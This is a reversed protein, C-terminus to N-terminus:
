QSCEPTGSSMPSASIHAHGPWHNPWNRWGVQAVDIYGQVDLRDIYAVVADLLAINGPSGWAGPGGFDVANGYAHQSWTSSGAIKKCVQTGLNTVGPYAAVVTGVIIDIAQNGSTDLYMAPNADHRYVSTVFGGTRIYWRFGPPSVLIRAQVKDLAESLSLNKRWTTRDQPRIAFGTPAEHQELAARMQARPFTQYDSGRFRYVIDQTEAIESPEGPFPAALIGEDTAAHEAGEILAGSPGPEEAARPSLLLTLLGLLGLIAAILRRPATM